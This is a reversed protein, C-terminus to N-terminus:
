PAATVIIPRSGSADSRSALWLEIDALERQTGPTAPNARFEDRAREFM